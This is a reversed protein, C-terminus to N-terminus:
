AALRPRLRDLRLPRLDDPSKPNSYWVVLHLPDFGLQVGSIGLATIRCSV